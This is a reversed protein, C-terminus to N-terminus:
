VLQLVTQEGLLGVMLLRELLQPVLVVLVVVQGVLVQELLLRLYEAVAMEQM